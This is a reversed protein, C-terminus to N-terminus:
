KGWSPFGSFGPAPSVTIQTVGSGDANMTYVEPHGRQGSVGVRRHFAIRDGTPSWTPKTVTINSPNVADDDFNTLRVQNSGDADMVWIEPRGTRNSEFAIRDGQPSWAPNADAGPSPRRGLGGTLRVTDSGDANMVYIEDNRDAALTGAPDHRNSTFAIANSKPSWDCRFNDGSAGPQGPIQGPSTLNTLGDGHVNAIYIDRRPATQSHFCLENGSHSFNPFAAGGAVNMLLRQETGDLNMVFIQPTTGGLRNSQFGILERSHSWDAGGSNYPPGGVVADAGGHTLRTPTSGDPVMVYIDECNPCMGLNSPNDRDTTFLIFGDNATEQSAHPAALWVVSLVMLATFLSVRRTRRSDTM